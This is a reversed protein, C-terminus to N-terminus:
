TTPFTPTTPRIRATFGNAVAASTGAGLTADTFADYGPTPLRQAYKRDTDSYFAGVVWQLPGKGKSSFRLEQRSARSTPPTTSAALAAARRCRSLRSRGVGLRDARQRRPEGPHRSRHLTTVSTLRVASLRDEGGPRRDDDQGRVERAAAPIAPSGLTVPPVTTTFRTPTCTTSRRATSATPPRSEPLGGAAHDDRGPTPQFTFGPPRRDRDGENVDKGGGPGLADIWGGFRTFYGVMRM